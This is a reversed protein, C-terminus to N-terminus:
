QHYQIVSETYGSWKIDIAIQTGMLALFFSYGVWYAQFESIETKSAIGWYGIVSFAISIWLAIALILDVTPNAWKKIFTVQCIRTSVYCAIIIMGFFYGCAILGPASAGDNINSQIAYCFFLVLAVCFYLIGYIFVRLGKSDM